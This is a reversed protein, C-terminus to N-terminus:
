LIIILIDMKLDKVYKCHCKLGFIKNDICINSDYHIGNLKLKDVVEPFSGYELCKEYIVIMLIFDTTDITSNAKYHKNYVITPAKCSTIISILLLM